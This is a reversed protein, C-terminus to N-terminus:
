GEQRAAARWFAKNWLTSRFWKEIQPDAVNLRRRDRCYFALSQAFYDRANAQATEDLGYGLSFLRALRAGAEQWAPMAGGGESLWDGGPAGGCGLYHDILHAIVHLPRENERGLDEISVYAVNRVAQHQLTAPGPAYHSEGGYIWVHGGECGLLYAWLPRPLCDLQQALAKVPAWSHDFVGRLWPAAQSLLNPAVRARQRLWAYANAQQEGSSGSNQVAV